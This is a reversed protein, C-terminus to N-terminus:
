PPAQAHVPPVVDHPPAHTSVLLSLEFQPPQPTTQPDPLVHWDPAHWHGDPVVRHPPTQRTSQQTAPSPAEDHSGCACDQPQPHLWDGCACVQKEHWCSATHMGGPMVLMM